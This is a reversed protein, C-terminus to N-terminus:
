LSLSLSFCYCGHLAEFRVHFYLVYVLAIFLPYGYRTRSHHTEFTAKDRAISEGNEVSFAPGTLIMMLAVCILIFLV